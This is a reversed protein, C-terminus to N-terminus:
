YNNIKLACCQFYMTSRHLTSVFATHQLSLRDPGGLMAPRMV